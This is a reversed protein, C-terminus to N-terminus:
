SRVGLKKRMYWLLALLFITMLWLPPESMRRTQDSELDFYSKGALVQAQKRRLTEWQAETELVTYTTLPTLLSTQWSAKVIDVWSSPSDFAAVYNLWQSWIALGAYWLMQEHLQEEAPTSPKHQAIQRLLEASHMIKTPDSAEPKPHQTTKPLLVISSGGTIRVFAQPESLNPWAVVKHEAFNPPIFRPVTALHPSTITTATQTSSSGQEATNPAISASPRSTADNAIHQRLSVPQLVADASLTYFLDSEPFAFSLADLDNSHINQPLSPSLVVIVPFARSAAMFHQLSIIQIARELFFGGESPFSAIAERWADHWLYSRARFNVLSIRSHERMQPYRQLFQEIRNIYQARNSAASQSMDLVFHFYVTRQIEPLKAIAAQSLYLASGKTTHILSTIAPSPPAIPSTLPVTHGDIQLRLPERHLLTFGTRRTEKAQFPFVRVHIRNNREYYVLGPDRRERLIQQYVWLTAKKETLMGRVKKDEIWLYYDSIWAGQPLEFSSHYEALGFKGRYKLTLDIESRYIGTQVNYVTLPKISTIVVDSTQQGSIAAAVPRSTSANDAPITSQGWFILEMQRIRSPSLTMNDLVISRYLTTILPIHKAYIIGRRHRLTSSKLMDLSYRLGRLDIRPDMETRQNPQFVFDMARHLIVRERYMSVAIVGPMIAVSLLGIILLPAIGMRLRLARWDEFM